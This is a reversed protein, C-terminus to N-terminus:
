VVTEGTQRCVPYDFCGGRWGEVGGGGGEVEGEGFSSMLASMMSFTRTTHFLLFQRRGPSFIVLPSSLTLIVPRTSEKWNGTQCVQGAKNQLTQSLEPRWSSLPTM